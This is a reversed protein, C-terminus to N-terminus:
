TNIPIYKKKEVYLFTNQKNFNIEFTAYYKDNIFKEDKITFSDILNKIEEVSFGSIKYMENTSITMSLLKRFALIIAKNIVKQKKFDANFPETIQIDSVKFISSHVKSNNLVIFLLLLFFFIYFKRLFFFNSNQFM